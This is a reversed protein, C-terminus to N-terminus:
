RPNGDFTTEYGLASEGWQYSSEDLTFGRNRGPFEILECGREPHYIGASYSVQAMLIAGRYLRSTTDDSNLADQVVTTQKEASIREFLEGGYLRRTRKVLDCVLFGTYPYFPYDTDHYMRVLDPEGIDAGPIITTVFARLVRDQLAMDRRFTAPYLGLLMRLATLVAGPAFASPGLAAGSTRLTRLRAWLSDRTTSRQFDM